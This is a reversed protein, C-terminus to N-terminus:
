QNLEVTIKDSESVNGAEDYAKVMYINKGALPAKDTYQIEKIM